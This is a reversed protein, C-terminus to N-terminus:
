RPKGALTPRVRIPPATARRALVPFVRRRLIAM